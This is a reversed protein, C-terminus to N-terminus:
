ESRHLVLPGRSRQGDGIPMAAAVKAAAELAAAETRAHVYALPSGAEVEDGLVRALVIGVQPDVSQLNDLPRFRDARKAARGGGLDVVVEGLALPDVDVVYGSCAAEVTLVFPARGLLQLDDLVRVDGGQLELNHAFVQRVVGDDWLRELSALAAVRHRAVGAVLLMEVALEM